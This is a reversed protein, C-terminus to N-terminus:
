WNFVYAVMSTIAGGTLDPFGPGNPNNQAPSYDQTLKDHFSVNHYVMEINIYSEKLRIPFELGFGVGLGIGGGVDNPLNTQTKFNNTVYWYELRGIFYPNSYTIATGLDSTDVYYRYSFFTRLMSVDIVGVPEDYAFTGYSYYMHHKSFELGLGFSSNFDLFYYLSLGYTPHDDEFAKGRNGDFDTIGVSVNFSFFRGYRYFREDEMVQTAELDENFDNFIDNGLSLDDDSIELQGDAGIQAQLTPLLLFLYCFIIIKLNLKM